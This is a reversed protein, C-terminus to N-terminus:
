VRFERWTRKEITRFNAADKISQLFPLVDRLETDGPEGFFPRVQLHNGYHRELKEPSDDIVLIRDLAYGRRTVKRLDKVSYQTQLEPDYRHVCRSSSWIFELPV